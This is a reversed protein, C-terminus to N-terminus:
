LGRKGSSMQTGKLSPVLFIEEEQNYRPQSTPCPTSANPLCAAVLNVVTPPM